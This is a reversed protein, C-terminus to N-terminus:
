YRDFKEQESYLKNYIEILREESLHDFITIIREIHVELNFGNLVRYNFKVFSLLDSIEMKDLYLSGYVFYEFLKEKILANIEAYTEQFSVFSTTKPRSVKTAKVMYRNPIMELIQTGNNTTHFYSLLDDESKLESFYCKFFDDKFDTVIEEISLWEMETIYPLSGEELYFRKFKNRDLDM